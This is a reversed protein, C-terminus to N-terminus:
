SGYKIKDWVYDAMQKADGQQFECEELRRKVFLDFSTNISPELEYYVPDQNKRHMLSSGELNAIAQDLIDSEPFFGRNRFTLEGLLQPFERKLAFFAEHLKRRDTTIRCRKEERMTYLIAVLVDDFSITMDSMM